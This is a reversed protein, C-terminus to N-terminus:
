ARRRRVATLIVGAAVLLLAIATFGGLEGGFGTGAIASGSADPATVTAAVSALTTGDAALIVVTHAGPPTSAPITFSGLVAGGVSPVLTGLVVPTSHLEVTLPTTDAFGTGSIIVTGGAVVTSSGLSFTPLPAIQAVTSTARVPAYGDLSATVQVSLATGAASRPVTLSAGGGIPVGDAFWTYTLGTPAPALTGGTTATVTEGARLM